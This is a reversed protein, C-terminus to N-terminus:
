AVVRTEYGCPSNVHAPWTSLARLPVRNIGEIGLFVFLREFIANPTASSRVHTGLIVIAEAYCFYPWSAGRPKLSSSLGPSKAAEDSQQEAKALREALDRERDTITLIASM